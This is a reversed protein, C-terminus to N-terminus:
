KKPSACVAADPKLSCVVAKLENIERQQREIQAKQVNLQKATEADAEARNPDAFNGQTCTSIQNASNRCLSTDGAAGLTNVQLTNPAIVTDTTRGLVVTNSTFVVAESGIATAFTLNSAGVNAFAGILTNSSGTSNSQGTYAGFFSNNGGTMNAEGASRGFFSNGSGSTSFLGGNAGFFSNNAGTLNSTGANAGVFSNLQGTTNDNGANAGVFTNLQGTTNNIGANVGAFLNNTGGVSLVRSNGIKYQVGANFTNATGTGNVNFDAVQQTTTNQIYNASGATPTRADTLRSDGEKIINSAATGGVALANNATTATAANKARIAYPASTIEQRPTLTTYNTDSPRKVRIELYRQDDPFGATGFDLQVTFIGNTVTVNTITQTGALTGGSPLSYIAFQFDFTGNATMSTDTLRGQYTFVTTQSVGGEPEDARTEDTQAAALQAAAFFLLTTLIITRSIRTVTTQQKM